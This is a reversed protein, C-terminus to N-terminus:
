KLIANRLQLQPVADDVGERSGEEAQEHAVPGVVVASPDEQSEGEGPVDGGVDDVHEVVVEEVLETGVM